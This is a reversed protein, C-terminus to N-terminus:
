LPQAAPATEEGTGSVANRDLLDLPSVAPNRMDKVVHTYIMTTEVKAHGLYDQIQRLDVGNLLLHTAFSHRLTHISAPKDIGALKVAKKMFRQLSRESVHHRRIIKSRPDIALRSSPFVFQWGWEQAANPYKRDLADPLYVEGHGDKLDQQHLKKVRQLHKKLDPMLSTSLITSRDKDGKSGRIFLLQQDFDIDKVRLRLCESLRLGAGYILRLMLGSTGELHEFLRVVEDHSFVVPLRRGKQARVSDKFSELDLKLVLRCFTLISNFALNQTSGSVKNITVLVVLFDRIYQETVIVHNGHSFGHTKRIYSFLRKCWNVYTQETRYSYNKLRLAKLFEELAEKSDFSGDSNIPILANERDQQSDHSLFNKFYVRIAHDAQELHWSEYHGNEAMTELFKPLQESWSYGPWKSRSSFFKRVWSVYFREVGQAVLGNNLLFEGFQSALFPKSDFSMKRKQLCHSSKYSLRM